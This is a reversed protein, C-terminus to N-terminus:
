KQPRARSFGIPWVNAHSRRQEPTTPTKPLLDCFLAPANTAGRM